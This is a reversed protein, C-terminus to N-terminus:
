PKIIAWISNRALPFTIGFRPCNLSSSNLSPIFDGCNGCGEDDGGVRRKAECISRKTEVHGARGAGVHDNLGARVRLGPNRQLGIQEAAPREM